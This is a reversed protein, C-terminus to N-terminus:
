RHLARELVLHNVATGLALCALFMLMAIAFVYPVLPQVVIRWIVAASQAAVDVTRAITAMRGSVGGAVPAAAQAAAALVDPLVVAAGAFLLALVALSAVQGWVPWTFWARAYWPRHRWAHVAAMVRPLLTRPAVPEPLQRVARDVLAELDAPHM